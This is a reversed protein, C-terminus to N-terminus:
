DIVAPSDAAPLFLEPESGEALDLMWIDFQPQVTSEEGDPHLAYLITDNDLWEVQDDVSRTEGLLRVEGSPLSVVALDFGGDARLQKFVLSRGDPSLSPCSGDYGTPELTRAAVDGLMIEPTDGFLGTIYFTNADVFTPGWFKRDPNAYKKEDDDVSFQNVGVLDRGDFYGITVVTSAETTIDEYSSGAIFSTNAAVTGDPSVRARSPLPIAYSSIEPQGPVKADFYTATYAPVIGNDGSLCIGNGAEIHVRLCERDLLTRTGDVHRIALRGYDDGPVRNVVVVEGPQPVPGTPEDDVSALITPTPEPVATPTPNNLEFERVAALAREERTAIDEDVRNAAVFLYGLGLLLLAMAGAALLLAKRTNSTM